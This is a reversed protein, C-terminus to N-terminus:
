SVVSEKAYQVLYEEVLQKAMKSSASKRHHRSQGVMEYIRVFTFIGNTFYEFTKCDVSITGRLHGSASPEPATIIADTM